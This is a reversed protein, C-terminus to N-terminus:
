LKVGLDHLAARLDSHSHATCLRWGLQQAICAICFQTSRQAAPQCLRVEGVVGAGEHAVATLTQQGNWSQDLHLDVRTNNFATIFIPLVLGEDVWTERRNHM